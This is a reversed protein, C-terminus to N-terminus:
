NEQYYISWRTRMKTYRVILCSCTKRVSGFLESILYSFTTNEQCPRDPPARPANAGSAGQTDVGSNPLIVDKTKMLISSIKVARRTQLAHIHHLLLRDTRGHRDVSSYFLRSGNRRRIAYFAGSASALTLHSKMYRKRTVVNIRTSWTHHKKLRTHKTLM